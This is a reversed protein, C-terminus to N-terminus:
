MNMDVQNTGQWVRITEREDEGNDVPGGTPRHSHQDGRRSGGGTSIGQQVVPDGTKPNGAVDGRIPPGLEGRCQPRGEGVGQPDLQVERGQVMGLGIPDNLPQVTVELGGETCAERTGVPVVLEQPHEESEVGGDLRVEGVQSSVEGQPMRRKKGTLQKASGRRGAVGRASWHQVVEGASARGGGSGQVMGSMNERLHIGVAGRLGEKYPVKGLEEVSEWTM